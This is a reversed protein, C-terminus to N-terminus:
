LREVILDPVAMTGDGIKYADRIIALASELAAGGDNALVTCLPEGRIVEHGVKKHLIVGVAPDVASDVRARGAGLLM